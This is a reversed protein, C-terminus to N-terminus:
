IAKELPNKYYSEFIEALKDEDLKVPKEPVIEPENLNNIECTFNIQQHKRV